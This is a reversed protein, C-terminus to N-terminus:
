WFVQFDFLTAIFKYCLLLLSLFVTNRERIWSLLKVNVKKLTINSAFFLNQSLQIHTINRRQSTPYEVPARQPFSNM